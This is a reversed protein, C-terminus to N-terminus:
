CTIRLLRQLLIGAALNMLFLSTDENLWDWTKLNMPENFDVMNIVSIKDLKDDIEKKKESVVEDIM